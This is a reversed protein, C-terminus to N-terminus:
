AADAVKQGIVTQFKRDDLRLEVQIGTNGGLAGSLANAAEMLLLPFLESFDHGKLARHLQRDVATALEDAARLVQGSQIRRPTGAGYSVLADMIKTEASLLSALGTRRHFVLDVINRANGPNYLRETDMHGMERLAQRIQTLREQLHQQGFNCALRVAAEDLVDYTFENSGRGPHIRSHTYTLMPYTFFTKGFPEANQFYLCPLWRRMTKQVAKGVAVYAPFFGTKMEPPSQRWILGTEGPMSFRLAATQCNELPEQFGYSELLIRVSMRAIPNDLIFEHEFRLWFEAPLASVGQCLLALHRHWDSGDMLPLVRALDPSLAFKTAALIEFRRNWTRRDILPLHLELDAVDGAAERIHGCTQKILNLKRDANEGLVVRMDESSAPGDVWEPTQAPHCGAVALELSDDDLLFGLDSELQGKSSERMWCFHYRAKTM